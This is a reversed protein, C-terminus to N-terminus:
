TQQQENLAREGLRSFLNAGSALYVGTSVLGIGVWDASTPVEGLLPIAFLAALVPVLAGFSSGVPAGLLRIAKGFLYLSLITAVVGQFLAQLLIDDLPATLLASPESSYLYFPVFAILSWFSVIAAAHLPDLKSQKLVLTYSAWMFSALLMLIQGTIYSHAGIIANLGVIILLGVMMLFYGVKRKHNFRERFFILALLAVFLPMVGPILVGAQAAPAYILSSSAILSYPAGAGCVLIMLKTLGLQKLGTGKRLIIPLLLTGAVSFRLLTIEYASLSTTVGLRTVAMWGAWISIAGLAFLTGKLMRLRDVKHGNM